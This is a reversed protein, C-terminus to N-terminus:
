KQLIFSMNRGTDKNKRYSFLYDEQEFSDWHHVQINTDPVNADLLMQYNLMKLDLLFKHDNKKMWFRKTDFSMTKVLDIIDKDVEYSYFEIAPGIYAYLENPNTNEEHILIHLMKKTLEQVTGKCGAHIAAIIHQERDYLLIPICDASFVGLLVNSLDTYLADCDKIADKNSFAGAGIDKKEIKHINCSHTQNAFVCQELPFHLEKLLHKRNEIIADSHDSTHLAMNNDEPRLPDKLSTGSFIYDDELWRYYHM